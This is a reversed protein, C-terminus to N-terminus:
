RAAETPQARSLPLADPAAAHAPPALTAQTPARRQATLAQFQKAALETKRM